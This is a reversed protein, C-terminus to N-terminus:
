WLCVEASIFTCSCLALSCPKFRLATREQWAVDVHQKTTAGSPLVEPLTVRPAFLFGIMTGWLELLVFPQTVIYSIDTVLDVMAFILTLM